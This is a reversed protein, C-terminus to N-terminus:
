EMRGARFARIYEMCFDDRGALMMSAKLAGYLHKDTPDMIASDLGRMVCAVLFTRNILRRNPLGYSVNTLGCTTHVGPYERMIREIADLTALASATGTGLPYVLPDIYLNEIPIGAAAVKEVLRGALEVKADATDAMADESQCLGIVKTGYEAVLPLIRELRAPELSISNIMVPQVRVMPLIDRIVHPDPSDICLPADIVEQVADVAWKLRDTERGELAGANVDVYHAGAAVQAMAEQQIFARDSALMAEAIKERSSNIREAIVLM